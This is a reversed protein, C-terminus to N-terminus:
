PKVANTVRQQQAHWGEFIALKADRRNLHADASLGGLKGVFRIAAELDSLEEALRERLNTGDWHEAKGENAILKGCIQLVEGAEEILKSIGPWEDAGIHFRTSM